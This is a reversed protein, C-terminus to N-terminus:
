RHRSVRNQPSGGIRLRYPVTDYTGAGLEKSAELLATRRPGAGSFLIADPGMFTPNFIDYFGDEPRLITQYAGTKLSVLALGQAYVGQGITKCLIADDGPKFVVPSCYHNPPVYPHDAPDFRIPVMTEQQLSPWGYIAINGSADRTAVKKGDTSFIPWFRLRTLKGIQRELLGLGGTSQNRDVTRYGFAVFRADPSLAASNLTFQAGAARASLLESMAVLLLSLVLGAM